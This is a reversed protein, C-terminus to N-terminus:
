IYVRPRPTAKTAETKEGCAAVATTFALVLM